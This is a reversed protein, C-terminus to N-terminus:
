YSNLQKAM